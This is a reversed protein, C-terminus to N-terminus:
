VDLIKTWKQSIESLNYKKSDKICNQSMEESFSGNELFDELYRSMQEEEVLYGTEPSIIERPGTHATSIPIVGQSMAEIIVMGFLEEWKSTKKSNLILFETKRFISILENTESIYKKYFINPYKDAATIILNELKGRGILTLKAKPRKKFVEIVDEIGKQSVLRGVYIFSNPTRNIPKNEIFPLSLSHNVVSIKNESINYNELIGQKAKDTVAFIHEITEELFLRWKELIASNYDSKPQFSKDWYTWSTHYCIKHKKLFLLLSILKKDYPAIGVVITKNKSFLLSILFSINTIQRRFLKFELSFLSKFIKTFVGFERFRLEQNYNNLLHKLGRYHSDAGNKHLVYVTKRPM